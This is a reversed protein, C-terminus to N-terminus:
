IRQSLQFHPYTLDGEALVGGGSGLGTRQIRWHGGGTGGVSPRRKVSPRPTPTPWNQGPDSDSDIFNQRSRSRRRSADASSLMHQTTVWRAYRQDGVETSLIGQQDPASLDDVFVAHEVRVDEHLVADDLSYTGILPTDRLGFKQFDLFLGLGIQVKSLNDLIEQVIHIQVLRDPFDVCKGVNCAKSM